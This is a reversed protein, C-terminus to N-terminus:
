FYDSGKNSFPTGLIICADLVTSFLERPADHVTPRRWWITPTNPDSAWPCHSEGSLVCPVLQLGELLLGGSLGGLM